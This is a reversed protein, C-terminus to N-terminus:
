KGTIGYKIVDFSPQLLVVETEVAEKITQETTTADIGFAELMDQAASIDLEPAPQTKNQKFEELARKAEDAEEKRKENDKKNNQVPKSPKAETQVVVAPNPSTETIVVSSTVEKSTVEEAESKAKEISSAPKRTRLPGKNRDRKAILEPSLPIEYQGKLSMAYKYNPHKELDYKKGYYPRKGRIRVLCEDDDMMSIQDITLVELSSRNYSTSGGGNVQYSTNEVVTTKKGLMKLLWEITEVDDCGLFLKTDCNATISNWDDKYLKKLQSLAQIIIACSLEYKRVTALKESFNGIQGINAFEDLIFRVHYPCRRECRVIKMNSLQSIFADASEKTGRWTILENTSKVRIEYYQKSDNWEKIVGNKVDKAFQELKKKANKSEAKSDAQVVKVINYKDLRAMYGYKATTEVYTYLTTFLQSYLMSVIFNFTDDATPIIVFLAKKGDAFTEFKFDDTSTLYKIDSLKFKELRTAVSILFSKATKGAAIKFSKYQEVALNEPDQKELNEFLIDLPSKTSADNEDIEAMNIMKVVNAFTQDKEEATHWLYLIMAELIMKEGNEWIPDGQHAEPPTTNKILTNVLIFVDKEERIYHFPNYRNSRYVDTIDFTLIEYGDNELAKAYDERLEGSPDTIVFNTNFQLINPGAYYRSKGAGSGGIVLTNCNRRTTHGDIALLIEESLIMNNFGDIEPKGIPDIMKRQFDKLEDLTMLHAEGNVTDPNDHKRIERDTKEMDIFLVVIGAFIAYVIFAWSEVNFSLPATFFSALADIITYRPNDNCISIVRLFALLGFLLSSWMAIKNRKERKQKRKEKEINSAM